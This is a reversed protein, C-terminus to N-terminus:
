HSGRTAPKDNKLIMKIHELIQQQIKTLRCSIAYDEADKGCMDQTFVNINQKLLINVIGPSDYHVALMLATRLCKGTGLIRAKIVASLM